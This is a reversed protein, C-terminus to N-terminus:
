WRGVARVLACRRRRPVDRRAAGVVVTSTQPRAFTPLLWVKGPPVLRSGTASQHDDDVPATALYNRNWASLRQSEREKLHDRIGFFYLLGATMVIGAIALGPFMYSNVQDTTLPTPSASETVAVVIAAAIVVLTPAGFICGM